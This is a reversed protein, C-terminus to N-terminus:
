WESHEGQFQIILWLPVLGNFVVYDYSSDNESSVLTHCVALNCSAIVASQISLTLLMVVHKLCSLQAVAFIVM